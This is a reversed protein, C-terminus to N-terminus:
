QLPMGGLTRIYTGHHKTNNHEIRVMRVGMLVGGWQGGGMRLV